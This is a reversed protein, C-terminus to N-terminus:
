QKNYSNTGSQKARMRKNDDRTGSVGEDIYRKYSKKNFTSPSRFNDKNKLPRSRSIQKKRKEINKIAELAKTDIDAKKRLPKSQNIPATIKKRSTKPKITSKNRESIAWQQANSIATNWSANNTNNRKSLLNDISWEGTQLMQWIHKKYKLTKTM